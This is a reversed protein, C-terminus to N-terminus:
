GPRSGPVGRLFHGQGVEPDDADPPEGAFIAMALRTLMPALSPSTLLDPREEVLTTMINRMGRVLM